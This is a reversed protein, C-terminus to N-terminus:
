SIEQWEGNASGRIIRFRHEGDFEVAIWNGRQWYGRAADIIHSWRANNLESDDVPQGDFKWKSKDVPTWGEIQFVGKSLGRDLGVAVADSRNRWTDGIGWDGRTAAYVDNDAVEQLANQIPFVYVASIPNAPDVPKARLAELENPFVGGHIAAHNGARANLLQGNQSANIGSMVAAEAIEAERQSAYGRSVIQWDVHEDAHWIEAIRRTKSTHDKPDGPDEAKLAENLHSVARAGVGEGVYFVKNDRPDRLLYDYHKLHEASLENLLKEHNEILGRLSQIEHM